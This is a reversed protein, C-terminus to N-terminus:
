ALRFFRDIGENFDVKPDYGLLNKAKTIDAHTKLAENATKNAKIPAKLGIKQEIKKLLDSTRIPM